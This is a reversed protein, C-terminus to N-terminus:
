DRRRGILCAWEGQVRQETVDLGNKRLDATLDEADYEIIGSFIFTGEPKLLDALAPALRRIVRTLINVVLVDAREEGLLGLAQEASGGAVTVVDDVENLECNARAIPITEELVDVAVVRGAGLRAAAISLIGSGAGVDAVVDDKAVLADLAELCLATTPHYGTGFAMGPDLEVVVRGKAEPPDALWAPKILLREGLALPKYERKWEEAWDEETVWETRVRAAGGDLGYQALAQVRTRLAAVEAAKSEPLFGTVFYEGGDGDELMVGEAGASRLLEAVAEEAETTTEVQVQLWRM